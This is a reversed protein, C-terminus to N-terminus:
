EHTIELLSSCGCLHFANAIHPTYGSLVLPFGMFTLTKKLSLLLQIGCMDIDSIDSLDVIDDVKWSALADKFLRHTEQIHGIILGQSSLKM